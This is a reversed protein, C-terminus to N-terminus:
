INLSYCVRDERIREKWGVLYGAQTGYVLSDEIEDDRRIWILATTAGRGSAGGPIKIPTEDV